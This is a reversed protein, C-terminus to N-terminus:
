GANEVFGPWPEDADAIGLEAQGRLQVGLPELMARLEALKGPNGSALLWRQGIGDRAKGM